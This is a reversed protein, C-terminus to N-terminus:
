LVYFIYIGSLILGSGLCKRWHLPEKFFLRSLLLVFIYGLPEIIIVNMYGMKGYCIIAILMAAILMSYGTVVKPNLYSKLISPHEETASKKLLIQSFASLLECVIMLIFYLIM